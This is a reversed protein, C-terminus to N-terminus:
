YQKFELAELQPAKLGHKHKWQQYLREASDEDALMLKMLQLGTEMCEKTNIVGPNAQLGPFVRKAHNSAEYKASTSTKLGSLGHQPLAASTTLLPTLLLVLLVPVFHVM